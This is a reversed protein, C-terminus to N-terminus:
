EWYSPSLDCGHLAPSVCCMGAAAPGTRCGESLCLGRQLSIGDLDERGSQLLDPLSIRWLVQFEPTLAVGLSLKRPAQLPHM